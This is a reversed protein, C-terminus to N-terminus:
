TCNKCTWSEAVGGTEDVLAELAVRSYRWVPIVSLAALYAGPIESRGCIMRIEPPLSFEQIIWIRRFWPRKYLAALSKWGEDDAAPLYPDNSISFSPIPNQERRLRGLSTVLKQLFQPVCDSGDEEKGLYLLGFQCESYIRRMLRVQHNREQADAQNICIGDAWIVTPVDGSRSRMRKLAQDLNATITLALGDIIIRRCLDPKGWVYSLADYVPRDDLATHVLTGSLQENGAGPDIRLIRIHCDSELPRYLYSGM